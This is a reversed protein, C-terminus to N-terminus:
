TIVCAFSLEISHRMSGVISAYLLETGMIRLAVFEIEHQSQPCPGVFSRLIWQQEGGHGYAWIWFFIWLLASEDGWASCAQFYTCDLEM